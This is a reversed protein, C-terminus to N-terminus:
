GGEDVLEIRTRAQTVLRHAEAQCMPRKMHRRNPGIKKFTGDPASALRFISKAVQYGVGHISMLERIVDENRM